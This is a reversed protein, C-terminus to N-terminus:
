VYLYIKFMFMIIKQLSFRMAILSAVEGKWGEHYMFANNQM